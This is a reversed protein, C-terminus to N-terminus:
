LLRNLADKYLFHDSLWCVTKELLEEKSKTIVAGELKVEEYLAFVNKGWKLGLAMESITGMNGGISVLCICSRAIIANRMEGMGTPIAVSLYPNAHSTDEEPLIGIAIGNADYAGKSAAQMVGGRGGCVITFGASALSRAVYYAAECENENGDGPGIVAIPLICRADGLQFKKLEELIDAVQM